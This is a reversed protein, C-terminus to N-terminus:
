RSVNQQIRTSSRLHRDVRFFFSANLLKILPAMLVRYSNESSRFSSKVLSRAKRFSSHYLVLLKSPESFCSLILSCKTKVECLLMSLSFSCGTNSIRQVTNGGCLILVAAISNADPKVGFLPDSKMTGNVKVSRTALRPQELGWAHIWSPALPM